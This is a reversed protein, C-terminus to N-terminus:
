KVVISLKTYTKNVLIQNDDWKGFIEGNKTFFIHRSKKPIIQIGCGVIDERGFAEEKPETSADAIAARKNIIRCYGEHAKGIYKGCENIGFQLSNRPKM